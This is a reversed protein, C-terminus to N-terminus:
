WSHRVQADEQDEDDWDDDWDDPKSDDMDAYYDEEGHMDAYFEEDLSRNYKGRCERCIEYYCSPEDWPRVGGIHAIPVEKNCWDCMQKPDPEARWEPNNPDRLKEREEPSLYRLASGCKRCGYVGDECTGEHLPKGDLLLGDYSGVDVPGGLSFDHM